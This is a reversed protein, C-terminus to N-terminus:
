QPDENSIDEHKDTDTDTNKNLRKQELKEENAKQELAFKEAEAKMQYILDNRSCLESPANNDDVVDASITNIGHQVEYQERELKMTIIKARFDSKAKAARLAIDLHNAAQALITGAHKAEVNFGFDLISKHAELALKTVENMEKIMDKEGTDDFISMPGMKELNKAVEEVESNQEPEETAGNLKSIAEKIPPLGLADEISKTM